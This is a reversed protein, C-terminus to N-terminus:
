VRACSIVEEDLLGTVDTSLGGPVKGAGGVAGFCTGVTLKSLEGGWRRSPSGLGQSLSFPSPDPHLTSATKSRACLPEEGCEKTQGGNVIARREDVPGPDGALAPSANPGVTGLVFGGGAWAGFPITHIGPPSNEM